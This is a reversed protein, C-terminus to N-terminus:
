RQPEASQTPISSEFNWDKPLEANCVACAFWGDKVINTQSCKPCLRFTVETTFHGPHTMGLHDLASAVQPWSAPEPCYGTSQNSVATVDGSRTVTIEGASLVLDGAACAVHESSRPALTLVGDTTVVFTATLNGENDVDARNATIWELLSERSVAPTGAPSSSAAERIEHPGVYRYIRTSM